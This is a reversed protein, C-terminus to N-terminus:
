GTMRAAQDKYVAAEQELPPVKKQADHLRLAMKGTMATVNSDHNRANAAIESLDAFRKEVGINVAEADLARKLNAAAENKLREIVPETDKLKGELDAVQKM